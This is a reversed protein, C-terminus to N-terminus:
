VLLSQLAQELRAQEGGGDARLRLVPIGAQRLIRDTREDQEARAADDPGVALLPQQGMRRYLLFAVHTRPNRIHRCDEECYPQLDRLINGLAVRVACGVTRYEPRALVKGIM